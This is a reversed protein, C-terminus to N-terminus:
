KKRGSLKRKKVTKKHKTKKQPMGRVKKRRRLPTRAENAADHEFINIDKSQNNSSVNNLLTDITSESVIESDKSANSLLVNEIDSTKLMSNISKLLRIKELEDAYKQNKKAM